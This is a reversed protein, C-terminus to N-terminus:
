NNDFLSLFVYINGATYATVNFNLWNVGDFNLYYTVEDGNSPNPDTGSFVVGTNGDLFSKDGQKYMGLFSWANTPSVTTSEWDTPETVMGSAQAKITADGSNTTFITATANRYKSVDISFGGAGTQTVGNLVVFSNTNRNIDM